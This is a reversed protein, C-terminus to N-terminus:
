IPSNTKVAKEIEFLDLQFGVFSDHTRPKVIKHTTVGHLRTSFQPSKPPAKTFEQEVECRGMWVVTDWMFHDKMNLM